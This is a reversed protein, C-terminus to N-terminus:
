YVKDMSQLNQKMYAIVNYIESYLL